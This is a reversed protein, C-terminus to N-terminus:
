KGYILKELDPYKKIMTGLDAYADEDLDDFCRGDKRDLCFRLTDIFGELQERNYRYRDFNSIFNTFKKPGYTNILLHCIDLLDLGQSVLFGDLLAMYDCFGEMVKATKSETKGKDNKDYSTDLFNIQNIFNNIQSAISDEDNKLQIMGLKKLATASLRDWMGDIENLYTIIIDYTRRKHNDHSDDYQLATFM